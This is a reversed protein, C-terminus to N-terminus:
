HSAPFETPQAVHRHSVVPYWLLGAFLLHFSKVPVLSVVALMSTVDYRCSILVWSRLRPVPLQPCTAIGDAQPGATMSAPHILTLTVTESKLIFPQECRTRTPAFVRPYARLTFTSVTKCRTLSCRVRVHGKANSLRLGFHLVINVRPLRRLSRDARGTAAISLPSRDRSRDGRRDGRTFLAYHSQPWILLLIVSRWCAASNCVQFMIVEVLVFYQHRRRYKPRTAVNKPSRKYFPEGQAIPGNDKRDQGTQRDTVNTYQPWVTPHILIFSPTCTPRPEPWMTNSPSGAGRGCLPVAGLKRGM